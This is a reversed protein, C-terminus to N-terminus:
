GTVIELDDTFGILGRDVMWHATGSLAVGNNDIDPGNQEVPRIQAAAVEARGLGNILKLGTVARREDYARLVPVGSRAGRSPAASPYRAM